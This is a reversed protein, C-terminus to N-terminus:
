PTKVIATIRQTRRQNRRNKERFNEARGDAPQEDFFLAERRSVGLEGKSKEVKVRQATFLSMKRARLIKSFLEQAGADRAIAAMAPAIRKIPLVIMTQPLAVCWEDSCRRVTEFRKKAQGLGGTFMAIPIDGARDRAKDLM